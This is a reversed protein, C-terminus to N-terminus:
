WADLVYSSSFFQGDLGRLLMGIGTTLQDPPFSADVNITMRDYVHTGAGPQSNTRTPRITIGGRTNRAMNWDGGVVEPVNWLRSQLNMFKVGCSRM